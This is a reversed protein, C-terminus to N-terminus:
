RERCLRCAWERACIVGEEGGGAGGWCGGSYKKGGIVGGRELGEKQRQGVV